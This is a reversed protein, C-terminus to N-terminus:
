QKILKLHNQKNPCYKFKNVWDYVMQQISNHCLGIFKADRRRCRRCQIGIASKVVTWEGKTYENLRPLIHKGDISLYSSFCLIESWDHLGFWCLFRKSRM